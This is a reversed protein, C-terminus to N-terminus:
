KRALVWDRHALSYEKEALNVEPDIFMLSGSGNLTVYSKVRVEPEDFLFKNGKIEITKGRYEDRIFHAFQLIMDPQTSMMKEQFVTLYDSNNIEIEGPFSPDSVYFLATGGKEILMVRWSFRFGEENWFLEGPYALYRFPLLLQIFFHLALFGIIIKQSFAPMIKQATVRPKNKIRGSLNRIRDIIKQHFEAPFFILTSLIMIWPFMGINFLMATMFHFAIVALYAWKRTRFSILLFPITLDYICGFWSFFYAVWEQDLFSGIVPLDAKSPLWISLPQAMVLWDYNIKAVGAFFYVMGLQLRISGITWRPVVASQIRPWFMADLSFYRNAPMLVMLFSVISIFYYHNLYTTKDILEIYTFALAFFLASYRYLFGIMVFFASLGLLFFLVYMGTEGLPKVWEFGLFTFYFEPAIYLQYIWDNAAFRIIGALMMMGFIIRFVALPAISVPKYLGEKIRFM